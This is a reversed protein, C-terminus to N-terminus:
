TLRIPSFMIKLVLSDRAIFFLEVILLNAQVHSSSRVREELTRHSCLIKASDERAYFLSFTRMSKTISMSKMLEIRLLTPVSARLCKRLELTKSAHFWKGLLSTSKSLRLFNLFLRIM